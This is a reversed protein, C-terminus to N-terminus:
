KELAMAELEEAQEYQLVLPKVCLVHQNCELAHKVVEYHFQDPMAVVVMQRAPMSELVEKYLVPYKNEAPESLAPHATFSQGPFAQAFEENDALAQLPASDLACIGIDGVVGSRQLHYVSPLILDNTIMGGGVILVNPKKNM